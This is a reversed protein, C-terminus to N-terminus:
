RPPSAAVADEPLGTDVSGNIVIRDRGRRKAEFLGADARRLLAELDERPDGDVVGFSATYSPLGTERATQRLQTRVRELLTAAEHASCSPLVIAFEEGGHRCVVDEARLASRLTEAFSRLARDGTEHGYTDNLAKFNDLDAMAVALRGPRMRYTRFRDELARRNLLGTLGDTSAQLQSDAIIRLMGLRAGAQNAIAQLDGVVANGIEAHREGIAHIVGVTRGMVSVPMCLASCGQETRGVLKPCANVADSDPFELVRSRRAAPCENPSAVPCGPYQDDDGVTVLRQLHAHSNDALLLEVHQGPLVSALSREVVRLAETESEAMEFADAVRTEVDRRSVERNVRQEWEATLDNNHKTERMASRYMALIVPFIMAMALAAAVVAQIAGTETGVIAVSILMAVFVVVGLLLASVTFQVVATRLVRNRAEELEGSSHATDRREGM